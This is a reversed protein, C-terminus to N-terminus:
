SGRPSSRPLAARRSGHPRLRRWGIVIGTLSFVLGIACLSVILVTRLMPRATLAPFDLTHLARYLWRYARRSPDTKQLLAGNAADIDYWVDGCAIRYVPANEIISAAAYDDARDVESPDGCAPGLQLAVPRVSRVPLYQRELGTSGIETLRQANAAAIERRFLKGDLAFWEVERVSPNIQRLEEDTLRDWPPAGSIAAIEADSTRARSFLLGDDMSLWGSFIWTTVLILTLLGLVHHWWHMGRYPSVRREGDTRLRVVGLVAGALVSVLAALSLWWVIASWRAPQSRLQPPYIWHAVSGAFNWRRAWRTTDLVVEGTKSSIYVETGADDDLALRYLPRYRHYSGAVTWQDHDILAIKASDASKLGRQRAHDAGIVLALPSSPVGAPALDSARLAASGSAGSVLYVPGDARQILRVRRVDTMGLAIVADAPAHLSGELRLPSLGSLRESENLHPYPVFHMVIGTAFWMAFLPALAIGLWRHTVVLVRLM